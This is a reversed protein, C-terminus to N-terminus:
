HAAALARPLLNMGRALLVSGDYSLHGADRYLFTGNISTVCTEPGCLFDDFRVVNLGAEQPLRSLFELVRSQKAEYDRRPIECLKGTGFSVKGSSVRELCLGINMGSAPPPAVVVAKRGSDRIARATRAIAAVTEGISGPKEVLLGDERVLVIAGDDFYRSFPSTLIVTHIKSSQLYRLVADNFSMCERAWSEGQGSKIDTSFLGLLPGCAGSSAQTIPEPSMAAIGPALHAAFSDGWILIGPNEGPRCANSVAVSSERRCGEGLGLNPRMIHAYDNASAPSLSLQVFPLILLIGSCALAVMAYQRSFVIKSRRIPTEIWQHLAWALILSAVLLALRVAFPENRAPFANHAFAILPWHVLYLPYSVDGVWVLLRILPNSGVSARAILVVATSLCVVIADLGPHLMGYFSGPAFAPVAILCAWAPIILPFTFRRAQENNFAIASLSGIALQWARTPMLYFTASSALPALYLCLALSCVLGTGIAASWWRTPLLFLCIPAFLYYQEEIGLSWMHLLPKLKAEGAFYGSQFYLVFNATFTISGIVQEAFDNM